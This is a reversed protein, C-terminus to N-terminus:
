GASYTLPILSPDTARDTIISSLFISTLSLISTFLQKTNETSIFPISGTILSVSLPETHNHKAALSHKLKNRATAHRPCNLLTHPVDDILKSALCTPHTCYPSIKNEDTSSPFEHRNQQSNVRNHRLRARFPIHPDKAYLYYSRRPGHKCTLLPATTTHLKRRSKNYIQPNRLEAAIIGPPDSQLQALSSQTLSLLPQPIADQAHDSNPRAPSQNENNQHNNLINTSAVERNDNLKQEGQNPVSDSDYKHERWDSDGSDSDSLRVSETSPISPPAPPHTAALAARKLRRNQNTATRKRLRTSPTNDTNLIRDGFTTGTRWEHHTIWMQILSLEQKSYRSIPRDSTILDPLPSSPDHFTIFTPLKDKIEKLTDYRAILSPPAYKIPKLYNHPLRKAPIDNERILVKRTPHTTDLLAARKTWSLLSHARFASLSPCNYEVFIGLQHTTVPLHICRRLPQLFAAQLKRIQKETLSHAWFMFGYTCRPRLYGVCLARIAPPHPKSTATAIRTLQYSDARATKLAHQYQSNWNLRYDLILGLYTYTPVTRIQFNTLTLAKCRNLYSPSLQQAGYFVVTETKKEGFKMRSRGCWDTLLDLAQQLDRLYRHENYTADMNPALAKDDAYLLPSITPCQHSIEKSIDNIFILFLLPSLVCGQPVGYYTPYWQSYIDRDVIRIQRDTLFSLIWRWAKGTIGATQLRDLLIPHDVYDFAKTLDLFIVPCPPSSKEAQSARKISTLLTNIADLTSRQSRFGFQFRHYYNPPLTAAIRKHIIHEMTRVIISTVSIPRYSGADTLAGKQKYLAMMNAQRWATPLVAHKWSYNYLATLTIHLTDGGHKLFIPLIKDPGPATNTYQKTCQDKVDNLTFLWSDSSHSPLTSGRSHDANTTHKTYVRAREEETSFPPPTSTASNSFFLALNSLSHQHTTPLENTAPHAISALPTYTSPTTRKLLAWQAQKNGSALTDCLRHWDRDRLDRILTKLAGRLRTYHLHYSNSGKYLALKRALIIEKYISVVRKNNYYSHQTHEKIHTGVTKHLTELLTKEVATYVSEITQQAEEHSPPITNLKQLIPQLEEFAAQIANPLATQWTNPSNHVSWTERPPQPPIVASHPTCFTMTLPKHDSILHTEHTLSIGLVLHTTNTFILDIVSSNKGAETRTPTGPIYINNLLSIDEEELLRALMRAASKHNDEPRALPDWLPHKLNFDGMVVYPTSPHDRTITNITEIVQQIYHTNTHLQPPLYVIGLIFTPTNPLRIRNWLMAATNWYNPDDDNDAQSAPLLLRTYQPLPQVPVKNCSLLALGGFSRRHGKKRPTNLCHWTYGSPAKPIKNDSFWTEVFAFLLPTPTTIQNNSNVMIHIADMKEALAHSNWYILTSPPRNSM